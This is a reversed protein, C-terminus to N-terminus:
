VPAVGFIPTREIPTDWWAVRSLDPRQSECLERHQVIFAAVAPNASGFPVAVEHGCNLRFTMEANAGSRSEALLESM